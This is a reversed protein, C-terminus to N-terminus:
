EKTLWFIEMEPDTEHKARKLQVSEGFYEFCGIMLGEAVDAMSRHSSYIMKLEQNSIRETDFMPPKASHYLKKVEVHIVDEIKELLSYSDTFNQVIEPHREV